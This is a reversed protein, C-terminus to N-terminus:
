PGPQELTPACDAVTTRRMDRVEEHPYRRGRHMVVRNDWMVLDLPRWVHAYVFRRDTAHETLDRLFARAEPVPWGHITGAHSSLFLSLRGTRPHRRVLRQPVPAYMRRQEETFDGFGLIARSFLQSHDCVLPLCERKTAEDLTDWAARMDAFETNGGTGPIARGSLLSYKAPTTKFSSDSHWLLNGLSFLRRRDDRALVRGERDLNSIDNLDLSLRRGAPDLVIDGTAKEMPGFHCSFAYQQEDTIRQDRFVLVAYRDMGEDIRAAVEATVGGAIDVGSVEGAFDPRGPHIPRISLSM